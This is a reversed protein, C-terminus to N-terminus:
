KPKVLRVTYRFNSTSSQPVVEFSNVWRFRYGMIVYPSTSTISSKSWYGAQMGTLHSGNDNNYGGADPLFISNHNTKSTLRFGSVGYGSRGTSSLKVVQRSANIKWESGSGFAARGQHAHIVPTSSRPPSVHPVTTVTLRLSLRGSGEPSASGSGPRLGESASCIERSM